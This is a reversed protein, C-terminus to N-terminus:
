DVTFTLEDDGADASKNCDFTVGETIMGTRNGEQLNTFQIKPASIAVRNGVSGLSLTLAQNTFAIFEGYWDKTAVLTSEPDMSGNPLRDTVMCYKVGAGTTEYADEIPEVTNGLNLTLRSIRPNYNGNLQIASNAFRLPSDTPFDPTLLATDTPAVWAGRFTWDITVARGAQMNFVANGMAGRIMKLMGDQYCGITVTKVGGSGPSNTVPSFTTSTKVWGCAPMLVEWLDPITAGGVMNTTFTATGTRLGPIAPLRGFKTQGQRKDVQIDQQILPNYVNYVGNAAAPTEATGATTETEVTIHRRKLLM